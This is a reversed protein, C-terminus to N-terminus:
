TFIAPMFGYSVTAGSSRGRVNPALGMQCRDRTIKAPGAVWKTSAKKKKAVQSANTPCGVSELGVNSAM